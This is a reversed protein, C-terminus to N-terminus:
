SKVEHLSPISRHMCNEKVDCRLCRRAEAAAIDTPFGTVVEQNNGRRQEPQLHVPRNRSGQDYVAPVAMTIVTDGLVEHRHNRGTLAEDMAWAARKGSGLATVVNSAGHVMDGGVYLKPRDTQLTFRDCVLTGDPNLTVAHKKLLETDRVEGIALVVSDFPMSRKQGTPEPRRRGSADFAGPKMMLVEVGAVRGKEDRVIRDPAAFLVLKLGEAEADEVEEAIAPMDARDRRYLVTVEAGLRLSTRAADIAANGGGIVAVRRGLDPAHGSAVKELLEIATFVGPGELGPIRVPTETWTGIALFVTDFEKELTAIRLDRGLAKGCEFRVGLARIVGIERDLIRKPLRYEPLSYRLMGGPEPFSDYVTVKHGLLSLYYSASLGAPGAGIVAISKGTAPLRSALLRQTLEELRGDAFIWDSLSRHVERMNVPADLTARRCRSECPHQCVRGTSAPMPNDRWILEAAEALRGEQTLALFAPIRMHLPCTNECPALFLADCVGGPCRQERIHAEYEARFYRLTTLVPNPATQGLGCLSAERIMHGLEELTTLDQMSAKGEVIRNLLRLAQDLGARCPVCKGCSESRSFEIFYRAVDVMCTDEDMVVMGGSGMIAGLSALSQYDVPTNFQAAPICGGSPGGTQIAKIPKGTPSGQGIDYLIKQLPSGLPMEVLGTNRIKGVLSFVKTGTSDPTGTSAFWEGGRALIVPINAWTEVNNINTPKGWLGSSAPYPPRPRPRGAKGELSAIMATEEGCVFAGAGEVLKLDFSFATGMIREGLLGIARADAIASRLRRVALPYEARLYVIGETAGTAVAGILMGEILMHPDSEIENRNMYAGPDGEDANCILVKGSGPADRLMGWKMGTPYGAGGRGRLRSKKVEEIVEAPNAKGLAKHLSQYGGVGIYEEISEPNILGCDRLVIKQQGGFFSTEHWHPVEPFGRGYFVQRTLHDWEEIKCFVKRPPLSRSAVAAVIDPVDEPTVQHLMVLPLGPLRLNVFPEAACFGFCGVPRVVAALNSAALGDRLAELVQGAGTGMGCTGMGVGLIAREESVLMQFGVNQLDLLHDLNQIKM